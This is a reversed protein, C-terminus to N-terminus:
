EKFRYGVGRLTELFRPNKPDENLKDRLQAVHQDVTRATGLFEQGWVRELLEERTYVRGPHRALFALLDFERRTLELPHGELFAQHRELDLSLPGREIRGSKGVRRLLAQVRAVLEPTSFPKTLYDDAGRTLGEVRDGEGARATLMLVPLSEYRGDRRMRELLRVGPEDPLMWDLIVLDVLALREWGEQATAAELVQHGAKALSLRLGMRVSPEDEVLLLKAM